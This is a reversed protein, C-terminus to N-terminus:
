LYKICACPGCSRAEPGVGCSCSCVFRDEHSEEKYEPENYKPEEKYQEKYEPKYQEKYEDEKDYPKKFLDQKQQKVPGSLGIAEFLDFQKEEAKAPEQQQQQVAPQQQAQTEAGASAQQNQLSTEAAGQAPAAKPAGGLMDSFMSSDANGNRSAAATAVLSALLVVSCVLIFNRAM